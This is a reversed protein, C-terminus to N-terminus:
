VQSFSGQIRLFQIVLSPGGAVVEVPIKTLPCNEISMIQLNCCLALETPLDMLNINDNLYLTELKRLDGIEVPIGQLDNEGAALYILNQLNGITRPLATLRNSQVVLRQLETLNGIELPLCDLHNEELDLVQLKQLEQITPPIRLSGIEDPLSFLKNSYLYLEKLHVALDRINIPVSHLQGKSLDLRSTADERCRGIEKLADSDTKKSKRPNPGCQYAKQDGPRQVTVKSKKSDFPSSSSGVLSSKKHPTM